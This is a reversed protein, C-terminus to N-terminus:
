GPLPKVEVLAEQVLHHLAKIRMENGRPPFPLLSIHRALPTGSPCLLTAPAVNLGPLSDGQAPINSEVRGDPGGGQGLLVAIPLAHGEFHLGSVKVGLDSLPLYSIQEEEHHVTASGHSALPLDQGGL